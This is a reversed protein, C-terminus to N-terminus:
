WRRSKAKPTRSPVPPPNSFGGRALRTACATSCARVSAPPAPKARPKSSKFRDDPHIQEFVSTEALERASYGLIKEHPPSNHFRHGKTDVLAIMDAANETIIRFLEERNRSRRNVVYIWLQQALIVLLLPVFLDAGRPAGLFLAACPTLPLPM